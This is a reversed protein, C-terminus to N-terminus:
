SIARPDPLVFTRRAVDSGLARASYWRTLCRRDLLDTAHPAFAEWTAAGSTLRREAVLAVFATTITAHYKTPRGLRVTLRRLGTAFRHLAEDFEYRAVLAFAIRVHEAHDFTEEDHLGAEFRALEVDIDRETAPTM